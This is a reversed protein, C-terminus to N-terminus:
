QKSRAAQQRPNKSFLLSQRESQRSILQVYAAKSTPPKLSNDRVHEYTTHHVRVRILEGAHEKAEVKGTGCDRSGHDTRGPSVRALCGSIHPRASTKDRDFVCAFQQLEDSRNNGSIHWSNHFTIAMSVLDLTGSKDQTPAFSVPSWGTQTEREREARARVGPEIKGAWMYLHVSRFANWIGWAM